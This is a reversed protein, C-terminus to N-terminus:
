SVESFSLRQERILEAKKYVADLETKLGFQKMLEYREAKEDKETLSLALDITAPVNRFLVNHDKSM